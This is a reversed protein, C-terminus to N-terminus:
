MLVKVLGVNTESAKYSYQLSVVLGIKIETNM